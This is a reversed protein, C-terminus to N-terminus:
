RNQVLDEILKRVNLRLTSVLFPVRLEMETFWLKEDTNKAAASSSSSSGSSRSKSYWLCIAKAIALVYVGCDSPDEQKPTKSYEMYTTTADSESSVSVSVYPRVVKYMHLAIDTNLNEESSDHHVFVNDSREFALLSWHNGGNKISTDNTENILPFIIIKM